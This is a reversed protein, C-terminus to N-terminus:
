NIVEIGLNGIKRDRSILPLQLHISTAAIIRDWPDNVDDRSIKRVQEIIPLCVPEIKYCDSESFTRLFREFEISVRKKELLFVLELFSICSIHIIALSEDALKFISKAEESLRPEDTLHWILSHTDTVYSM